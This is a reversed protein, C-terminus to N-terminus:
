RGHFGGAEYSVVECNGFDFDRGSTLEDWKLSNFADNEIGPPKTLKGM